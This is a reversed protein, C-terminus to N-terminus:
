TQMHCGAKFTKACICSTPPINNQSIQGELLMTHSGVSRPFCMALCSYAIAPILWYRTHRVAGNEQYSPSYLRRNDNGSSRLYDGPPLTPDSLQTIMRGGLGLVYQKSFSHVVIKKFARNVSRSDSYGDRVKYLTTTAYLVADELFFIRAEDRPGTTWSRGWSEAVVPCFMAHVALGLARRNLCPARKSDSM